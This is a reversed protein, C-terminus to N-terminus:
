GDTSNLVNLRKNLNMPTGEPYLKTNRERANLIIQMNKLLRTKKTKACAATVDLTKFRCLTARERGVAGICHFNETIIKMANRKLDSKLKILDMRFDSSIRAIHNARLPAIKERIASDKAKFRMKKAALSFPVTFCFLWDFKLAKKFM